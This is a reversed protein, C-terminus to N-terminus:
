DAPQPNSGWPAWGGAVPGGPTPRGLRSLLEVLDMGLVGLIRDLQDTDLPYEGTLRRSMTSQSLGTAKALAVGSIRREALVGRLARAIQDTLGSTAPFQVVSNTSM